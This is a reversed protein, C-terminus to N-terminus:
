TSRSTAILIPTAFDGRDIVIPVGGSREAPSASGSAADAPCQARHFHEVRAARSRSAQIDLNGPRRRRNGRRGAVIALQLEVASTQNPLPVSTLSQKAAKDTSSARRTTAASSSRACRSCSELNILKAGILWSELIWAERYDSLGFLAFALAYWLEISSNRHKEMAFSSWPPSFWGPPDRRVLQVLSVSDSPRPIQRNSYKWWTRLFLFDIAAKM